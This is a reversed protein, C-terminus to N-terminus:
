FNTHYNYYRIIFQQVAILAEMKVTEPFKLKGKPLRKMKGECYKYDIPKKNINLRLHFKGGINM